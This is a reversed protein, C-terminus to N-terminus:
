SANGGAIALVSAALAAVDVPRDTRVRLTLGV